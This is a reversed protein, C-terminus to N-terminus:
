ATEEEEADEVDEAVLSVLSAGKEFSEGVQLHVREVVGDRSATIESQMKMSEIVLLVQRDKVEDGDAVSVTVVTGPTPAVVTDEGGAERAKREEPDVVPVAHARGFAHVYVTDGDVVYWIKESRDGVQLDAGAPGDRLAADQGVGDIWVTATGDSRRVVQIENEGIRIM